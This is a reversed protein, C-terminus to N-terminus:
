LGLPSTLQDNEEMYERGKKSTSTWPIVEERLGSYTKIYENKNATTEQEEWQSLYFGTM